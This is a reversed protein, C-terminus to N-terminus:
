RTRRRVAAPGIGKAPVRRATPRQVVVGRLGRSACGRRAADVLLHRHGNTTSRTRRHASGRELPAGLGAGGPPLRGGGRGGRLAQVASARRIVGEMREVEVARSEKSTRDGAPRSTTSCACTTARDSLAAILALRHVRRRRYRADERRDLAVIPGRLPGASGTGPSKATMTQECPPSSRASASRASPARRGRLAGHHQHVHRGPVSSTWVRRARDLADRGPVHRLGLPRPSDRRLGAEADVAPASVDGKRSQSAIGGARPSARRRQPLGVAGASTPTDGAARHKGTQGAPARAAATGCAPPPRSGTSARGRRDSRMSVGRTSGPFMSTSLSTVPSSTNADSRPRRGPVTEGTPRLLDAHHQPEDARAPPNTYSGRAATSCRVLGSRM